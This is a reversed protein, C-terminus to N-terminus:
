TQAADERYGGPPPPAGGTAEWRAQAAQVIANARDMDAENRAPPATGDDRSLIQELEVLEADTM